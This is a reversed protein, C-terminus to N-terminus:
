AVVWPLRRNNFIVEDYLKKYCPSFYRRFHIYPRKSDLQKGCLYCFLAQCSECRMKNCGENKSTVVTCKPCRRWGERVVMEEFRADAGGNRKRWKGFAECGMGTHTTEAKCSLCWQHSCTPCTAVRNPQSSKRHPLKTPLPPSPDSPDTYVVTDCSPNPCRSYNPDKDVAALFSLRELQEREEESLVQMALAFTIESMKEKEEMEEEVVKDVEGSGREQGFVGFLSGRRRVGGKSRLSTLSIVRELGRKGGDVKEKVGLAPVSARRKMWSGRKGTEVSGEESKKKIVSGRKMWSGRREEGDQRRGVVEVLDPNPSFARLANDAKCIPCLLPFQRSLVASMITDHACPNCLRHQCPTITFAKGEEIGDEQCVCCFFTEGVEVEGEKGKKGHHVQPM